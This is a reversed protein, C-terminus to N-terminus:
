HLDVGRWFGVHRVPMLKISMSNWWPNSVPRRWQVADAAIAALFECVVRISVRFYLCSLVQYWVMCKTIANNCPSLTLDVCDVMIHLRSSKHITSWVYLSFSPFIQQTYGLLLVWMLSSKGPFYSNKQVSKASLVISVVQGFPWNVM